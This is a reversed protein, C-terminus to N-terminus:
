DLLAELMQSTIRLLSYSTFCNVFLCINATYFTILIFVLHNATYFGVLFFFVLIHSHQNFFLALSASDQCHQISCLHAIHHQQFFAFTFIYCFTSKRIQKIHPSYNPLTRQSFLHKLFKQMFQQALDTDHLDLCNQQIAKTVRVRGTKLVSKQFPNCKYDGRM